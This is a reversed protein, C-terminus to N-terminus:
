LDHRLIGSICRNHIRNNRLSREAKETQAVTARIVSRGIFNTSITPHATRWLFKSETNAVQIVVLASRGSFRAMNWLLILVMCGALSTQVVNTQQWVRQQCKQEQLEWLVIGGMSDRTVRVKIRPLKTVAKEKLVVWTKINM